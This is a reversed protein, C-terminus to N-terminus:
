VGMRRDVFVFVVWSSLEVTPTKQRWPLQLQGHLVRLVDQRGCVEQTYVGDLLVARLEQVVPDGQLVADADLEQGLLVVQVLQPLLRESDGGAAGDSDEIRLIRELEWEFVYTDM